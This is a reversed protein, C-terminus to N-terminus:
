HAEKDKVKGIRASKSIYSPIPSITSVFYTIIHLVIGSAADCRALILLEGLMDRPMTLPADVVFLMFMLM